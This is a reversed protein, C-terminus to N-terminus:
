RWQHDRISRSPVRCFLPALGLLRRHQRRHSQNAALNKGGRYQSDPFQARFFRSLGFSVKLPRMEHFILADFFKAACFIYGLRMLKILFIQFVIHGHMNVAKFARQFHALKLAPLGVRSILKHCWIFFIHHPALRRAFQQGRGM